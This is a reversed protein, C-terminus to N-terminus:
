NFKLEEGNLAFFLNQLQHIYKIEIIKDRDYYLVDGKKTGNFNFTNLSWFGYGAWEDQGGIRPPKYKFGFKLLWEETLPIPMFEECPREAFAECRIYQNAGDIFEVKDVQSLPNYIFNGIRLENAKM